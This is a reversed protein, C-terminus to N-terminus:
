AAHTGASGGKRVLERAALIATFTSAVGVALTAWVFFFARTTGAAQAGVIGGTGTMHIVPMAAGLIGGLLMIVYGSRRGALAVTGSLWAVLILVTAINAPGRQGMGGNVHLTDDTLHLTMLLLSVLSTITLVTSRRM